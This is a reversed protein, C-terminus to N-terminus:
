EIVKTEISIIEYWNTACHIEQELDHKIFQDNTYYTDDSEVELIVTVQKKM